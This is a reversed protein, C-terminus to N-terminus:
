FNNSGCYIRLQHQISEALGSMFLMPIVNVYTINRNYSKSIRFHWASHKIKNTALLHVMKSLKQGTSMLIIDIREYKQFANDGM